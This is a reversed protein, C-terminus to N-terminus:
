RTTEQLAPTPAALGSFVLDLTRRLGDQGLGLEPHALTLDINFSLVGMLALTVDGPNAARLDGAAIGESAIEAIVAKLKEHFIEFDFPPAGQAPGWFVANMMRVEAKKREFVEFIGVLFGELRERATGERVRNAAIAEDALRLLEELIALYIGEKSQFHYYLAPKTVGAMEVIERVSTAAYGRNTFLLIAADMLRKRVSSETVEEQM